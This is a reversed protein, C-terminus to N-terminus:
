EPSFVPDQWSHTAPVSFVSTEFLAHELQAAPVYEVIKVATVLVHTTHGSFEFENM